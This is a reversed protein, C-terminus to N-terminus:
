VSRLVLLGCRSFLQPTQHPATRELCSLFSSPLLFGTPFRLFFGSFFFVNACCCRSPCLRKTQPSSPSCGAMKAILIFPPLSQKQRFYQSIYTQTESPIKFHTFFTTCCSKKKTHTLFSSRLIFNSM